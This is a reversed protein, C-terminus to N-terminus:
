YTNEDFRIHRVDLLNSLTFETADHTRLGLMVADATDEAFVTCFGDLVDLFTDGILPVSVFNRRFLRFFFKFGFALLLSLGSLLSPFLLGFPRGLEVLFPFRYFRCFLLKSDLPLEELVPFLCPHFQLLRLLFIVAAAVAAPRGHVLLHHTIM